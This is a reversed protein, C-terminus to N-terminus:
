QSGGQIKKNEEISEKKRLEEWEKLKAQWKGEIDM